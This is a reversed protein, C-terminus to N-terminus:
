RSVKPQFAMCAPDDRYVTHQRKGAMGPRHCLTEDGVSPGRECEGCVLGALLYRNGTGLATQKPVALGDGSEDGIPWLCFVEHPAKM